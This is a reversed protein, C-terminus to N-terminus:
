GSEVAKTMKLEMYFGHHQESQRSRSMPKLEDSSDKNSLLLRTEYGLHIRMKFFEPTRYGASWDVLCGKPTTM